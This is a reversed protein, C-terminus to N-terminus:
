CEFHFWQDTGSPWTRELVSSKGFYDVVITTSSRTGYQGGLLEGMPVYISSLYREADLGIGTDPLEEDPPREKNQLIHMLREHFAEIPESEVSERLEVNEVHSLDSVAKECINRLLKKGREVKPWSTDLLANSLGYIGPPLPNPPIHQTAFNSDAGYTRRHNEVHNGYYRIGEEDGALLNFGNYENGRNQQLDTIFSEASPLSKDIIKTRSNSNEMGLFELLLEGRSPKGHEEKHGKGRYNTLAIWRLSPKIDANNKPSKPFVDLGLWTGGGVLDKGALSYRRRYRFHDPEYDIGGMNRYGSDQNM